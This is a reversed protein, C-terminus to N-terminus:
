TKVWFQDLTEVMKLLKPLEMPKVLYSDAGLAHAKEIDIKLDSSSLVVFPIKQLEPRGRRWELLDFGTVRPMKLDVLVLAPLPFEIEDSYKGMRSLYHIAEDGDNVYRLSANLGSKKLAYAMLIGFAEDDDVLLLVPPM